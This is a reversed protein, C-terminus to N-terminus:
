YSNRIKIAEEIWTSLNDKIYGYVQRSDWHPPDYVKVISSMRTNDRDMTLYDFPNNGKNSQRGSLDKLKHIYIGLLGKGDNWSKEIEYTIWKRGATNEGILVVTCTRGSLQNDIWNKIAQEGGRKISEWDNDNAPQNGEIIGINRVQSARSSDPQYHFSYFAKRTM